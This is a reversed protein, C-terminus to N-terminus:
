KRRESLRFTLWVHSNPGKWIKEPCVTPKGSKWFYTPAKWIGKGSLQENGLRELCRTVKNNYMGERIWQGQCCFSVCKEKFITLWHGVEASFSKLTLHSLAFEQDLRGALGLKNFCVIIIRQSYPEDAIGQYSCRLQSHATAWPWQWAIHSLYSWLLNFYWFAIKGLNMKKRKGRITERYASLKHNIELTEFFNITITKSLKNM